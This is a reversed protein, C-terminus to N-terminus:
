ESVREIEIATGPLQWVGPLDADEGGPVEEMPPLQARDLIERLRLAAERSKQRRLFEPVESLDLTARTRKIEWDLADNGHLFGDKSRFIEDVSETSSLFSELTERPSGTEAPAPLPSSWLGFPLVLGVFM